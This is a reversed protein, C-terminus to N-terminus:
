TRGEMRIARVLDGVAASIASDEGYTIDGFTYTDRTVDGITKKLDKIASIVEETTGNQHRRNMLGNISRVNSLVGVSPTRDFLGGIAGAGARVNSLDLVPRITPQVDMDSNIFDVIRSIANSLGRRASLGMDSGADYAKSEYESIANVFAVGFFDGIEYGVKSPSHEDLEKRAASAATAAMAKAKAEAMFTNASIGKAFGETLDKGAKEFAKAKDTINKLCKEAMKECAKSAGSTKDEIGKKFADIAEKAYKKVDTDM